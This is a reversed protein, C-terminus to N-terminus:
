CGNRRAGGPAPVVTPTASIEVVFDNFDRDTLGTGNQDDWFLLWTKQTIDDGTIEYTIMHDLDDNNLSKDSSWHRIGPADGNGMDSRDWTWDKGTLDIIGEGSLSEDGLFNTGSGGDINFLEHYGDTDTFGFSQSYAAFKAKAQIDAIGDNWFQDGTEGASSSLINLSTTDDDDVRTATFGTSTYMAQGDLGVIPMFTEGYIGDLLENIRKEGAGSVTTYVAHATSSTLVLVCLMVVQNKM